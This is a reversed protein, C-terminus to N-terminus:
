RPVRAFGKSSSRVFNESWTFVIDLEEVPISRYINKEACNIIKMFERYLSFNRRSEVLKMFYRVINSLIVRRSEFVSYHEHPGNEESSCNLLFGNQLELLSRFKDFNVETLKVFNEEWRAKKFRFDRARKDFVARDALTGESKNDEPKPEQCLITLWRMYSDVADLYARYCEFEKVYTSQYLESISAVENLCNSRIAKFYSKLKDTHGSRIHARAIHIVARLLALMVLKSDEVYNSSLSIWELNEANFDEDQARLSEIVGEGIELPDIGNLQATSLFLEIDSTSAKATRTTISSIHQVIIPVQYEKSMQRVYFPLYILYGVKVLIETYLEVFHDMLIACVPYNCIRYVILLHVIFRITHNLALPNEETMEIFSVLDSKYAELFTEPANLMINLQVERFILQSSLVPKFSEFNSNVVNVCQQLDIFQDWFKPPMSIYRANGCSRLEKELAVDYSTKLYAWLQDEWTSSAALMADRHGCLAGLSAREYKSQKNSECILFATRKWLDRRVNGTVFYDPRQHVARRNIPPILQMPTSESVVDKEVTATFHAGFLTAAYAINGSEHLFSFAKQHNGLRLYYFCGLHSKAADAEDLEHLHRNERVIADPDVHQVMKHKSSKGLLADKKLTEFTQEWNVFKEVLDPPDKRNPYNAELWRIIAFIQKLPGNRGVLQDTAESENIHYIDNADVPSVCIDMKSSMESLRELHLSMFLEWTEIETRLDRKIKSFTTDDIDTDPSKESDEAQGLSIKWKSIVDFIQNPTELPQLVMLFEHCLSEM